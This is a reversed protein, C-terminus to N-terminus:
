NHFEGCYATRSNWLRRQRFQGMEGPDQGTSTPRYGSRKMLSFGVIGPWARNMFSAGCGILAFLLYTGPFDYFRHDIPIDYRKRVGASSQLTITVNNARTALKLSSDSVLQVTGVTTTQEVTPAALVATSASLLLYLATPISFQM